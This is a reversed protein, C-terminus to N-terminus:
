FCFLFFLAVAANKRAWPDGVEAEALGHGDVAVAAVRRLHGGAALHPLHVEEQVCGPPFVASNPQDSFLAFNM